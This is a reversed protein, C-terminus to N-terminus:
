LQQSFIVVNLKGTITANVWATNAVWEPFKYRPYDTCIALKYKGNWLKKLTVIDSPIFGDIGSPFETPTGMIFVPSGDCIAGDPNPNFTIRAHVDRKITMLVIGNNIGEESIFEYFPITEETM